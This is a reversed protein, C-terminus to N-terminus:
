IAQCCIAAARVLCTQLVKRFSLLFKLGLKEKLNGVTRYINQTSACPLCRPLMLLFKTSFAHCLM